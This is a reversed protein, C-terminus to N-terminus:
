RPLASRRWAGPGNGWAEGGWGSRPPPSPEGGSAALGALVLVLAALSVEDACGRVVLVLEAM